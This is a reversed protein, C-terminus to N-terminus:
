PRKSLAESVARWAAAADRLAAAHLVNWVPEGAGSPQSLSLVCLSAIREVEGQDVLMRAGLEWSHDTMGNRPGRSLAEVARLLLPGLEIARLPSEQVRDVLLELAVATSAQVSSELLALVLSRFADEGAASLWRSRRGLESLCPPSLLDRRIANEVWSLREDDGGVEVLTLALSEADEPASSMERLVPDVADARGAQKWGGLYRALLIKSPWTQTSARARRRLEPFLLAQDDCRGLAVAFVQARLAQDSYLWDLESLVPADGALGERALVDDLTEDNKRLTAPGWTGVHQRLRERFVTPQLLRELRKLAPRAFSLQEEDYARVQALADRLEIRDSDSYESVREALLSLAEAGIGWRLASRLEAFAVRKAERATSPDPDAFRQALAKWIRLRGARAEAPSLVPRAGDVAPLARRSGRATLMARAGLLAIRRAAPSPDELREELLAARQDLGHYSVNLEPFYLASWTATANNEYVENEALALRFLSDEAAEFCSRRAALEELALVLDRREDNRIRLEEISLRTIRRHLQSAVAVPQHRVIFQLRAGLLGSAALAGRASPVARLEDLGTRAIMSLLDSPLNLQEIAELFDALFDIGHRQLTKGGPDPGDPAFLWAIVERELIHPTVYKYKWNLNRRLIGRQVCQEATDVVDQWRALGVARAIANMQADSLDAWDARRTLAAALLSRARRLRLAILEDERAAEQKAALAWEVAERIGRPARGEAIAERALLAVFWPYGQTLRVISQVQEDMPSSSGLSHAALESASAQDLPELLWRIAARGGSFVDRSAPTMVLLRARSEPSALARFRSMLISMDTVPCDDVILLVDSHRALLRGPQLADLAEAPNFAVRVRQGLSPDEGLADILLRTKGVGPPGVLWATKEGGGAKSGRFFELLSRRLAARAEDEVFTTEVRQDVHDARWEGLSHLLPVVGLERAWREMAGSPMRGRLFRTIAHADLIEIRADPDGAAPDIEALCEQFAAVLHQRPTRQVDGRKCEADLKGVSNILLKFYGGDRLVEVARNPQRRTHKGPKRLRALADRIDKLADDLWGRGSKCSYVTCGMGDETFPKLRYTRQYDLKSIHPPKKVTVSIDRGGDPVYRGAPGLVDPDDHRDFAECEVLDQCFSEFREAELNQIQAVQLDEWHRLDRPSM